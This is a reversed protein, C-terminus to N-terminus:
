KKVKFYLTRVAPNGQDSIGQIVAVYRGAADSSFFEIDETGANGTRLLPNWYLLSRFDPLRSSYKQPTEYSPSYFERQRQLGEFDVIVSRTDLEYSNMDGKYTKCDVIGYYGRGGLFYKKTVVEISKIKLPDYNMFKNIDLIAVGDLLILPDPEFPVRNRADNVHLHFSGGSNSVNIERIYERLVEELTSFRTYRDLLYVVDPKLYFPTSDEKNIIFNNLKSENYVHQVQHYIREKNMSTLDIQALNLLPVQYDYFKASFPSIFSIVTHDDPSQFIFEQNGFSNRLEFNAIGDSDSVSSWFRTNKGPVSLFVPANEIPLGTPKDTIRASVIEGNFEPAFKWTPKQQQLIDNWNFRRWGQTLMLDDM